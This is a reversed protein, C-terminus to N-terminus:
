NCLYYHYHSSGDSKVAISKLDQQNKLEFDEIIKNLVVTNNLDPNLYITAKRNKIEVRGRPYYNFPQGRTVSRSLKQWEAKHNFNQGSKSSFDIPRDSKGDADCKVSVVILQPSDCGFSDCWFIGKKM